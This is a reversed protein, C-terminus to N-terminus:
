VLAYGYINVWGQADGLGGSNYSGPVSLLLYVSAGSLVNGGSQAAAALTMQKWIGVAFGTTFDFDALHTAGLADVCLAGKASTLPFNNLGVVVQTIIYNLANIGIAQATLIQFDAYLQGLLVLAGSAGPQGAAGPVGPINVPAPTQCCSPFCDTLM